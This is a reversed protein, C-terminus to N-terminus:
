IVTKQFIATSGGFGGGVYGGFMRFAIKADVLVPPNESILRQYHNQHNNQNYEHNTFNRMQQSFQANAQRQVPTAIRQASLMAFYM